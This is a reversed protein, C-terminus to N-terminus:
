HHITITVFSPAAKRSVGDSSSRVDGGPATTGSMSKSSRRYGRVRFVVGGIHNGDPLSLRGPNLSARVRGHRRIFDRRSAFCFFADRFIKTTVDALGRCTSRTVNHRLLCMRRLDDACARQASGFFLKVAPNMVLSFFIDDVSSPHVISILREVHFDAGGESSCFCNSSCFCRSSCFVSNLHSSSHFFSAFYFKAARARDSTKSIATVSISAKSETSKSCQLDLEVARRTRQATADLLVAEDLLRQRCLGFGSWSAPGHLRLM